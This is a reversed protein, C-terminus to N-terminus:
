HLEETPQRNSPLFRAIQEVSESSNRDRPLDL